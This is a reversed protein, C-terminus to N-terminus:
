TKSGLKKPQVFFIKMSSQLITIQFPYASLTEKGNLKRKKQYEGITARNRLM